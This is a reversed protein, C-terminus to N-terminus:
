RVQVIQSPSIDTIIQGGATEITLMPQGSRFSVAKVVGNFTTGGQQGAVDVQRGLLSVAQTSAQVLLLNDVRDSLQRSQELSTFQALQSMFQFNDVPKLPDQYTLQTLIIKLLSELNLGLSEIRSGTQAVSGISDIAM